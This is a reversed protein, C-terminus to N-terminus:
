LIDEAFNVMMDKEVSIDLDKIQVGAITALVVFDSQTEFDDVV